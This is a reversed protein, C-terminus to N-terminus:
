TASCSTGACSATLGAVWAAAGGAQQMQRAFGAAAAGEGEAGLAAALHVEAAPQGLAIGDGRGLRLVREFFLPSGPQVPGARKAILRGGLAGPYSLQYLM